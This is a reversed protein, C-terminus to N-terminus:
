AQKEKSFTDLMFRAGLRFGEAFTAKQLGGCYFNMEEEFAQLLELQKETLDKALQRYYQAATDLRSRLEPTNYQKSEGPHINGEWLKDIISTM